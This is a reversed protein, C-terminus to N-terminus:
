VISRPACKPISAFRKANCRRRQLRARNSFGACKRCNRQRKVRPFARNGNRRPGNGIRTRSGVLTIWCTPGVRARSPQRGARLEDYAAFIENLLPVLSVGDCIAHHFTWVWVQHDPALQLFTSRWAPQNRGLPLPGDEALFTDLDAVDRLHSAPCEIKLRRQFLEDELLLFQAMFGAHRLLCIRAAELFTVPEVHRKLRVILQQHYVTQQPPKLSALVDRQLGTARHCRQM